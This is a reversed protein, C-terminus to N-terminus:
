ITYALFFVFLRKYYIEYMKLYKQVYVYVLPNNSFSFPLFNRPHGIGHYSKQDKVIQFKFRRRVQTEGERNLLKKKNKKQQM